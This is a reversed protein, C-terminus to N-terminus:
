IIYFRFDYTLKKFEENLLPTLDFWRESNLEVQEFM